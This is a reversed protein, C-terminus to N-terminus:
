VPNCSCSENEIASYTNSCSSHQPSQICFLFMTTVSGCILLFIFKLNMTCYVVDACGLVFLSLSSSATEVSNSNVVDLRRYSPLSAEEAFLFSKQPDPFPIDAFSKNHVFRKLLEVYAEPFDQQLFHGANKVTVLSLMDDLTSYTGAVNGDGITWLSRAASKGWLRGDFWSKLNLAKEIGITHTMLDNEGSFLLVPIHQAVFEIELLSNQGIWTDHTGSSLQFFIERFRSKMDSENLNNESSDQQLEEKQVRSYQSDRLFCTDWGNLEDQLAINADSKQEAPQMETANVASNAAVIRSLKRDERSDPVFLQQAKQSIDSINSDSIGLFVNNINITINNNNFDRDNDYDLDHNEDFDLFTILTYQSSFYVQCFTYLYKKLFSVRM